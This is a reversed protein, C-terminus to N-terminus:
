PAVFVFAASGAGRATGLDLLPVDNVAFRHRRLAIEVGFGVRIELFGAIRFAAQPITTVFPLVTQGSGQKGLPTEGTASLIRGGAGVEAGLALFEWVGAMRLASGVAGESAHVSGAEDQYDLASTLRGQAALEGRFAGYALRGGAGFIVGGQAPATGTGTAAWGGVDGVFAFRPGESPAAPEVPPPPKPAPSKPPAPEAVQRVIATEPEGEIADLVEAVKLALARYVGLGEGAEVRRVVVLAQGARDGVVHLLAVEGIAPDVTREVWVVIKGGEGSLAATAAETRAAFTGAVPAASPRVRARGALQIALAELLPPPPPETEVGAVLVIAEAAGLPRADLVLVALVALGAALLRLCASAIRHM